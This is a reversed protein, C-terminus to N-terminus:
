EIRARCRNEGKEPVNRGQIMGIEAGKEFPAGLVPVSNEPNWSTELEESGTTPIFSTTEGIEFGGDLFHPAHHLGEPINGHEVVVSHHAFVADIYKSEGEPLKRAVLGIYPMGLKEAVYLGLGARHM